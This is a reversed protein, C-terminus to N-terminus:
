NFRAKLGSWSSPEVPVPGCDIAMTQTLTTGWTGFQVTPGALACTGDLFAPYTAPKTIAPNLSTTEGVGAGNGIAFVLNCGNTFEGSTNGNVVSAVPVNNVFQVTSTLTTTGLTAVGDGWPWGGAYLTLTGGQFVQTYVVTGTGNMDRNDVPPNGTTEIACSVDWQTGLTGGNWSQGHLVKPFGSNITPRWVSARGTLLQGGLDTSTYLGPVPDAQAPNTTGGVLALFFAFLSIQAFRKM